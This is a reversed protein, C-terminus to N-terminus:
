TSTVCTVDHALLAESLSCPDLVHRDKDKLHGTPEYVTGYPRLVQRQSTLNSGMAVYPIDIRTSTIVGTM